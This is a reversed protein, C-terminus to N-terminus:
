WQNPVIGVVSDDANGGEAVIPWLLLAAALKLVGSPGLGAELAETGDTLEGM